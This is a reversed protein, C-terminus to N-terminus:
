NSIEGGGFVADAKIILKRSKDIDENLIFHREDTFGGFIGNSDVSIDWNSPVYLKVGGFVCEVKLVSMGEALQVNRLDIEGGGFVFSLKGGQFNKSNVSLNIGSFIKSIQLYDDNRTECNEVILDRECENKKPFYRKVIISIGLIILLMPWIINIKGTEIVYIEDVLFLVGIAIIIFSAFWHSRTGGSINILGVAILLSQWSFIYGMIEESMKGMNGLILLVGSALLLLSIVLPRFSRACRRNEIIIDSKNERRRM